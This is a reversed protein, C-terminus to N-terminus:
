KLIIVCRIDYAYGTNFAFPMMIAPSGDSVVGATSFSGYTSQYQTNDGSLKVRVPSPSVHMTTCSFLM